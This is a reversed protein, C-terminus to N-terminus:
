SLYDLSAYPWAPGASSEIAYAMKRGCAGPRHPRRDPNLMYWDPLMYLALPRLSAYLRDSSAHPERRRQRFYGNHQRTDFKSGPRFNWLWGVM